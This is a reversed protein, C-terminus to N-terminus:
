NWCNTFADQATDGTNARQIADATLKLDFSNLSVMDAIDFDTPISVKTFLSATNDKVLEAKLYYTMTMTDAETDKTVAGKDWVAMDLGTFLTAGLDTISHKTMIAEWASAKNLTVNIRVWAGYEGTNRVTPKKEVVSGPAIDNYTKGVESEDGAGNSEFLKISFLKDPDVPQDPNDPDYTATLFTDTISKTATFYALSGVAMLAALCLAAASFLLKKKKM